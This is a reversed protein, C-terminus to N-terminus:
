AGLDGCLVSRGVQHDGIIDKCVDRVYDIECSPQAREHRVGAIDTDLDRVQQLQNLM